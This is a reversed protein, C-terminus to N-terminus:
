VIMRRNLFTLRDQFAKHNVSPESFSVMNQSVIKLDASGALTKLVSFSTLSRFIGFIFKEHVWAQWTGFWIYLNNCHMKYATQGFHANEGKSKLEAPIIIPTQILEARRFLKSTRSETWSFNATQFPCMRHHHHHFHFLLFFPCTKFFTSLSLRFFFDVVVAFIPFIFSFSCIAMEGDWRLRERWPWALADYQYVGIGWGVGGRCM